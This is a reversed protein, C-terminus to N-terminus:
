DGSIGDALLYDRLRDALWRLHTGAEVSTQVDPLPDVLATRLDEPLTPLYAYAETRADRLGPHPRPVDEGTEGEHTMWRGEERLSREYSWLARNRSEALTREYVRRQTRAGILSGILGSVLGAVVTAILFLVENTDLPM